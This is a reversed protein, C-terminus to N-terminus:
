GLKEFALRNGYAGKKVTFLCLKCYNFLHILEYFYLNEGIAKKKKKTDVFHLLTFNQERM